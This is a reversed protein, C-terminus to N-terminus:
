FALCFASNRATLALHSLRRGRWGLALIVLYGLGAPKLMNRMSFLRSVSLCNVDGWAKPWGVCLWNDRAMHQEWVKREAVFSHEDGPGGRYKLQAFPGCLKRALWCAIDHRFAEDEPTFRLKM